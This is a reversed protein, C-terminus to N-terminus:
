AVRTLFKYTYFVGQKIHETKAAAVYFFPIIAIESGQKTAAPLRL